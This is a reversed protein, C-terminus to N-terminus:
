LAVRTQFEWARRAAELVELSRLGETGEAAIRARGQIAEVFNVLMRYTPSMVYAGLELEYQVLNEEAPLDLDMRGRNGSIELRWNGPNEVSEPFYVQRSELTVRVGNSMEFRLSGYSGPAAGGSEAAEVVTFEAALLWRLADILSTDLRIRRVGDGSSSDGPDAGDPRGSARIRVKSLDGLDGELVRQRTRGFAASLRIPFCVGFLVGHAQSIAWMERAEVLGRSIPNKCLISKGARACDVVSEKRRGSVDCFVVGDVAQRSWCTEITLSLRWGKCGNM